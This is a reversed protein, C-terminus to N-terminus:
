CRKCYWLHETDKNEFVNQCIQPETKVILHIIENKPGPILQTFYCSRPVEQILIVTVNKKQYKYQKMSLIHEM